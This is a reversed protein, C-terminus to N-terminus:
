VGRRKLITNKGASLAQLANLNEIYLYIRTSATPLRCTTPGVWNRQKTGEGELPPNREFRSLISIRPFLVDCLEIADPSPPQQISCTELGLRSLIAM